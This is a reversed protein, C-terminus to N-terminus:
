HTLATTGIGLAGLASSAKNGAKKDLAEIYPLMEKFTRAKRPIRFMSLPNMSVNVEKLRGLIGQLAAKAEEPSMSEISEMFAEPSKRELNKAAGNGSGAIRKTADAGARFAETAKSADAHEYVAKRFTPMINDSVHLLKRKAAGIDAKELESGAKYDSSNIIRGQLAKQRETMLKYAERVIAAPNAGQMTRSAKIEAIYPKIDSAAMANTVAQPTPQSASINGEAAAKGYNAADTTEMATKRALATKGLTKSAFTRVGAGIGQAIKPAVAGLTGQVAADKAREGTGVPDAQLAGSFAGYAAGKKIISSGPAVAGAVVGGIVRNARRVWKPAADEAGRIDSLSESYPQGRVVARTGAQAAEVGPIDRAMSAIGGLAKQAYSAEEETDDSIPIGMQGIKAKRPAKLKILEDLPDTGAKLALLQELPDDNM